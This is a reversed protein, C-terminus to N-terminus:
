RHSLGALEQSTHFLSFRGVTQFIIFLFKINLIYYFLLLIIFIIYCNMNKFYFNFWVVKFLLSVLLLNRQRICWVVGVVALVTDLNILPSILHLFLWFYVCSWYRNYAFFLIWVFSLSFLRRSIADDFVNGKSHAM